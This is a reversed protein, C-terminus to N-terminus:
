EYSQIELCLFVLDQVYDNSNISNFKYLQQWSLSRFTLSSLVFLCFSLIVSLLVFHCCPCLFLKVKMQNSKLKLTLMYNKIMFNEVNWKKKVHALDYKGRVCQLNVGPVDQLRGGRVLVISHEQLNHGEGPIYATAEKGNSLKLRVCKRQASNPKKPKKIVLKLVVGRKYANGCLYKNPKKIKPQIPGGRRHMQNLTEFRQLILSGGPRPEVAHNVLPSSDSHVFIETILKLKQMFFKKKQWKRDFVWASYHFISGTISIKM